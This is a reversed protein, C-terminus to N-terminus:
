EKRESQIFELFFAIFVSLMLATIFAVSVILMKRPKVPKDFEEINGVLMTRQIKLPSVSLEIDNESNRLTYITTTIDNLETQKNAIEISYIGALAANKRWISLLKRKYNKIDKQIQTVFTQNRKLDDKILVLRKKQTQIYMNLERNQLTKISNIVNELKEKASTNNYGRATVVLLNESKKPLTIAQVIPYERKKEEEDVGYIFALKQKLDNVNETTNNDIQALEVVGKVEYIPRVLLVYSLAGLTVIGTIFWILRKRKRLVVWLERLDITNKEYCQQQM